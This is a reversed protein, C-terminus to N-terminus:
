EIVLTAYRNLYFIQYSFSLINKLAVHFQAKIHM